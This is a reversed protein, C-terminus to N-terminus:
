QVVATEDVVIKGALIQKRIDELLQHNKAGILSANKDNYVYDTYRDALGFVSVRGGNFSGDLVTEVTKLVARDVAKTM